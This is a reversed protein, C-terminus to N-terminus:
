SCDDQIALDRYPERVIEMNLAINGCPSCREADM